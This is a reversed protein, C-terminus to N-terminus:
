RAEADARNIVVMVDVDAARALRIMSATGAGGPFAVVLDPETQLMQANRVPGAAKGYIEWQAPHVEVPLGVSKAWRAALADAGRAGGHVVVFDGISQKLKDLVREVKGRDSYERGGCVIVRKSLSTVISM